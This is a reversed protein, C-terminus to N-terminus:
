IQFGSATTCAETPRGLFATLAPPLPTASAAATPNIARFRSIQLRSLADAASNDIGPIHSVRLAFSHQAATFLTQRVLSMLRRDRSWGKEWACVVGTNDCHMLVSLGTWRHGWLLCAALIPIMELWSISNAWAKTAAPWAQSFWAGDCCGGFGLTSADTYLHLDAPPTWTPHILPATGNWEPLVSLWWNIDRKTGQTITVWHHPRRVTHATDLLRRFFSRGAPICKTAHVLKGILSLLQRQRITRTSRTERLLAILARLKALPLSITMDATDLVCGLLEMRTSPPSCKAPSLPIDCHECISLFTRYARRCADTDAPGIFFFDDLYHHVHQHRAHFRTTLTLIDALDTFLSCASRLGFPLRVDYYFQENWRFGLLWRQTPHVPILRFAHQLDAKALLTKNPGLSFIHLIAQDITTYQVTFESRDIHSNVSHGDPQSLDLILRISGDPKERAGLPNCHFPTM